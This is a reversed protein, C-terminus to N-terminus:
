AAMRKVVIDKGLLKMVTIIDPSKTKGTLRVRLVQVLDGFKIQRADSIKKLDAELAEFSVYGGSKIVAAKMEEAAKAMNPDQLLADVASKAADDLRYEDLAFEGIEEFLTKLTLNRGKLLEVAETLWAPDKMKGKMELKAEKLFEDMYSILKDSPTMKMHKGNVWIM